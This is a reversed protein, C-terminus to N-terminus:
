LVLLGLQYYHLLSPRRGLFSHPHKTNNNPPSYSLLPGSSTPSGTMRIGPVQMKPGVAPNGAARAEYQLDIATRAVLRRVLSVQDDAM